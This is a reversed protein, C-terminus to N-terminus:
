RGAFSAHGPGAHLFSEIGSRLDASNFLDAAVTPTSADAAKIGGAAYARLIAKTANHALTPGQALRQAFRTADQEFRADDYVRTVVGWELMKQASYLGATMILERARSPGARQALRATGGMAPTLGIVAEVLGFQATSSAVILDCGLALEFAATLSVGHCAAVTPCPLVELPAIVENLCRSSWTEFEGAGAQRFGAVDVGGSFLAGAGRILLCRPPDLVLADLATALEDVVATTLLNLPPHDITLTALGADREVTVIM